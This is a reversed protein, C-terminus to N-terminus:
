KCKIKIQLINDKIINNAFFPPTQHKTNMTMEFKWQGTIGDAGLHIARITRQFNRHGFTVHGTKTRLAFAPDKDRQRHDAGLSSTRMAFFLGFTGETIFGVAEKRFDGGTFRLETFGGETGAIGDAFVFDDATQPDAAHAFDIQNFVSQQIGVESEFDQTFLDDHGVRFQLASQQTFGAEGSIDM